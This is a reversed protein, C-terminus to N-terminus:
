YRRWLSSVNVFCSLSRGSKPQVFKSLQLFDLSSTTRLLLIESIVPKLINACHNQSSSSCFYTSNKPGSIYKQNIFLNTLFFFIIWSHSPLFFRQSMWVLPRSIFAQARTLNSRFNELGSEKSIRDMILLSKCFEPYKIFVQCSVIGYTEILYLFVGCFFLIEGIFCALLCFVFLRVFFLLLFVFLLVDLFFINLLFPSNPFFIM